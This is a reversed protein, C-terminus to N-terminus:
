AVVSPGIRGRAPGLGEALVAVAASAEMVALACAQHGLHVRPVEVEVAAAASVVTLVSNRRVAVMAALHDGEAPGLLVMLDLASPLDMPVWGREATEAPDM